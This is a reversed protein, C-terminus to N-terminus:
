RRSSCIPSTSTTSRSSLSPWRPSCTACRSRSRCSALRDIGAVPVQAAFLRAVILSALEARSRVLILIDGPSLPRKTSALVPAEDLWAKVQEALHTAYARDTEDLWGEEGEGEEDEVDFPAWLEVLGPRQDFHALHRNPPQPLGMAEYGVECIVADVADLIAPASRFSADISLDRFELALAQGDDAADEAERLAASNDRVWERARQFENPDTGQFGFIAQKFDGVMFLTRTRGEAESSGSFYEAALAEIIAWQDRNTDQSEDVLIHDTKRDLKYRVWEGMGPQELLARTWRILDDFDAVGASRKAHTYAAAFAQGARM